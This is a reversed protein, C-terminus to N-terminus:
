PKAYRRHVQRTFEKITLGTARPIVSRVLDEFAESPREIDNQELRVSYLSKLHGTEPVDLMELKM